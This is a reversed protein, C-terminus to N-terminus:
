EHASEQIMRYRDPDIIQRKQDFDVFMRFRNRNPIIM